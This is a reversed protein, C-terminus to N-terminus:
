VAEWPNTIALKDQYLHFNEKTIGQKMLMSKTYELPSFNPSNSEVWRLFKIAMAAEQRPLLFFDKRPDEGQWFRLKEKSPEESFNVAEALDWSAKKIEVAANLWIRILVRFQEQNFNGMHQQVRAQAEAIQRDELSGSEKAQAKAATLSERVAGRIEHNQAADASAELTATYADVWTALNRWKELAGSTGILNM